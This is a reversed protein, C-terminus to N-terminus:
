HKRLTQLVTLPDGLTKWGSGEVARLEAVAELLSRDAHTEFEELKLEDLEWDGTENRFWVGTGSARVSGYLNSALQKALERSTMSLKHEYGDITILLAHITKDKGGVRVVTGELTTKERIPGIREIQIADIGLFKLLKKGSGSTLTGTAADKRLLAELNDYSKRIDQPADQNGALSLRENVRKVEQPEVEANLVTSGPTLKKFHVFAESGMLAGLSQMYEGLRVMPITEPSYATIKLRYRINESM